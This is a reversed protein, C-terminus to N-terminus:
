DFQVSCRCNAVEEAGGAPDGPWALGNSFNQSLLVTQGNMAAHRPSGSSVWTKTKAGASEAADHAGFAASRTVMSQAYGNAAAVLARFVAERADDEDGASGLEARTSDNIRGASMDANILMWASMLAPVFEAGFQRAVREGFAAATDFNARFIVEALRKDWSEGLAGGVVLVHFQQDEFLGELARRTVQERERRLDPTSM